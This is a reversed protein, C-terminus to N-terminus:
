KNSSRKGHKIKEGNEKKWKENINPKNIQLWKKQKESKFPM